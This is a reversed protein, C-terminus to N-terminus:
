GVKRKAERLAGIFTLENSLRCDEQPESHDSAHATFWSYSQTVHISKSNAWRVLDLLEEAESKMKNDSAKVEEALAKGIDNPIVGSCKTRVIKDLKYALGDYNLTM